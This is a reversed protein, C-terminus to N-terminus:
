GRVRPGPAPCLQRYIATMILTSVPISVFLGLGLLSAGLVNFVLLGALVAAMRITADSSLIASREFSRVLNKEGDVTCFGFLSYRVGFYIGPIVLLALGAVTGLIHLVQGVLFKPGLSLQTVADIFRPEKGDYLALCIQPLGAEMGAFTILFAVHAATWLVIGYRQGAFVVLELIVWAGFMTLLIASFLTWRKKFTSWAFRLAENVSLTPTGM